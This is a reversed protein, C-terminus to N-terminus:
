VRQCGEGACRIRVGTCIARHFKESVSNEADVAGAYHGVPKFCVFFDM